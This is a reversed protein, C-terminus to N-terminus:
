NSVGIYAETKKDTKEVEIHISDGQHHAIIYSTTM